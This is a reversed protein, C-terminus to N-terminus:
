KPFSTPFPCSDSCLVHRPHYMFVWERLTNSGYYFCVAKIVSMFYANAEVFILVSVSSYKIPSRLWAAWKKGRKLLHRLRNLLVWERLTNSGYYFCVAKVVSMFYANAEVFILVYVSSDKIPSRLWAAWTMGGARYKNFRSRWKSFLPFFHPSCRSWSQCRSSRWSHIFNRCLTVVLLTGILLMTNTLGDTFRHGSAQLYQMPPYLSLPMAHCHIIGEKHCPFSVNFRMYNRADATVM